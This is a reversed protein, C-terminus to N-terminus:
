APSNAPRAQPVTSRREHIEDCRQALRSDEEDIQQMLPSLRAQPFAGTVMRVAPPLVRGTSGAVLQMTLGILWAVCIAVICAVTPRADLAFVSLAVLAALSAVLTGLASVLMVLDPRESVSSQPPRPHGPIDIGLYFALGAYLISGLLGAASNMGRIDAAAALPAVFLASLAGLVALGTRGIVRSLRNTRSGNM